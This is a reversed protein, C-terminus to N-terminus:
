KAGELAKILDDKKMNSIGEIGKEKALEKLQDVTLKSYDVTIEKVKDQILKYGDSILSNKESEKIVVREINEKRLRYGM